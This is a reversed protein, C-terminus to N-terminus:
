NFKNMMDEFDDFMDVDTSEDTDQNEQKTENQKPQLAPQEQKTDLIEDAEELKIPTKPKQPEDKKELINNILKETDVPKPPNEKQKKIKGNQKALTKNLNSISGKNTVKNKSTLIEVEREYPITIPFDVYGRLINKIMANRYGKPIQEIWDVIEKDETDDIHIHFQASQPLPNDHPTRPIIVRDHTSNISLRDHVYSKLVTKIIKQISVMPMKYLYMLDM